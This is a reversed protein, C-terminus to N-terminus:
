MLELEDTIKQLFSEQWPEWVKARLPILTNRYARSALLNNRVWQLEKQSLRM